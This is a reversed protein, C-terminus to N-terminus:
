IKLHNFVFRYPFELMLVYLFNLLSGEVIRCLSFVRATPFTAKLRPKLPHTLLSAKTM